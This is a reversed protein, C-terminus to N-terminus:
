SLRRGTSARANELVAHLQRARVTWTAARAQSRREHELAPDNEELALRLARVFEEPTDAQYVLRGFRDLEPMRSAAVPLGFHFYEYVKLPDMFEPLLGQRPILGARFTALLM